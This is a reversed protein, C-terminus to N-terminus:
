SWNGTRWTNGYRALMLADIEAVTQSIAFKRSIVQGQENTMYLDSPWVEGNRQLVWDMSILKPELVEYNHSWCSVRICCQDPKLWPNSYPPKQFKVLEVRWDLVGDGVQDPLDHLLKTQLALALSHGLGNPHSM